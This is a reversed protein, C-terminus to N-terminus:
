RAADAFGAALFGCTWVALTADNGVAYLYSQVGALLLGAVLVATAAAASSRDAGGLRRLGVTCRWVLTGLLLALLVLGAVGLQLLVGLYSNESSGGFFAYHRDVFVREETGFGYGAVARESAHDLAAEWADVRGTSAFLTRREGADASDPAGIEDELRFVRDADNAAEKCRVCAPGAPETASPDPSPVEAAAFALAVAAALAAFAYAAQRRRFTTALLVTAAATATVFAGRSGSAVISGALLLACAAGLARLHGRRDLVVWLALPLTVAFLMAATNPNEGIGRYRTPITATARQLADDRSVLLVALGLLAVVVSGALVSALLREFLARDASATLALSAAIALTLAFSIGRAFTLDWDVSWASSTVAVAALAAGLLYRGSLVRRGLERPGIHALAFAVTAAALALLSLRWVPQAVARVSASWNSGLAVAVITAPLLVLVTRELPRRLSSRM